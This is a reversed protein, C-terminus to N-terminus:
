SKPMIIFYKNVFTMSLNYICHLAIAIAFYPFSIGLDAARGDALQKKWVRMLGMSAILACCIHLTTCVTWRYYAFAEANILNKKPVYLHIYLLNEVTAFLAATVVASFVFQWMAFVRYPRKELLYIMSSQKLFEEIVPAAVIAYGIGYWGMHGAMFAGIIAFPGALLAATFTYSLNSLIGTDARKKELWEKLDFQGVDGTYAPENKVSDRVRSLEDQNADIDCAKQESPDPKFDSGSLAPEYRTSFFKKRM